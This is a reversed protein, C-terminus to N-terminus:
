DGPYLAEIIILGGAEYKELVVTLMLSLIRDVLWPKDESSQQLFAKEKSLIMCFLDDAWAHKIYFM